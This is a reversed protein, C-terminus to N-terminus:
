SNKTLHSIYNALSEKNSGWHSNYQLMWNRVVEVGTRDLALFNCRGSKKRQLLQAQEMVKIHKHIAPLSLGERTALQSISVPQLSLTHLIARRHENALAAFVRDLQQESSMFKVLLNLKNM